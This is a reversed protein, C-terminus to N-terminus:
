NSLTGGRYKIERSLHWEYYHLYKVLMGHFPVDRLWGYAGLKNACQRNM